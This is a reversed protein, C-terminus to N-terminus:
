YRFFFPSKQLLRWVKKQQCYSSFTYNIFLLKVTWLIIVKINLFITNSNPFYWCYISHKHTVLFLFIGVYHVSSKRNELNRSKKLLLQSCILKELKIKKPTRRQQAKCQIRRMRVPVPLVYNILNPAMWIILSM